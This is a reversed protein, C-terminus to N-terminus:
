TSKFPIIEGNKFVYLQRNFTFTKGEVLKSLDNLDQEMSHISGGTKYAINLYQLNTFLQTGCVIVRVPVKIKSILAIDRMPAYNDAVFIIEKADPYLEQAKLIAEIGNEETDGSCGKSTADQLLKLLEDYSNTSQNYLGGTKGIVKLHNPKGDGDNFLIINTMEKDNLKYLFWMALQSVYPSMSCTVDAVVTSNKWQKNRRFTAIVTSDQYQRFSEKTVKVSDNKPLVSDYYKTEKAYMKASQEPRYHIVIGHFLTKAEAESKCDMQRILQWVIRENSVLDKRAELAKLIRQKNLTNLDIGKPYDTYVVDVQFVDANKLNAKDMISVVASEGFSMNIVVADIYGTELRYRKKKIEKQDMIDQVTRTQALMMFPLAILFILVTFKM